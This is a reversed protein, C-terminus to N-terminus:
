EDGREMLKEDQKSRSDPMMIYVSVILVLIVIAGIVWLYNRDGVVLVQFLSVLFCTSVLILPSYEILGAGNELKQHKQMFDMM